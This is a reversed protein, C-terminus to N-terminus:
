GHKKKRPKRKLKTVEAELELKAVKLKGNEMRESRLQEELEESRSKRYSQPHGNPCYFTRKTEKINRHLDATIWFLAGCSCCEEEAINKNIIM